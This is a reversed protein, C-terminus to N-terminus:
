QVPLWAPQLDVDEALGALKGVVDSPLDIGEVLAKRRLNWEREHPVLVREVGDATPRPIDRNIWFGTTRSRNAASFRLTSRAVPSRAAPLTSCFRIVGRRCQTRWLIAAPSRDVLVPPRLAPFTM